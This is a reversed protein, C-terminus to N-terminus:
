EKITSTPNNLLWDIDIEITGTTVYARGDPVRFLRM